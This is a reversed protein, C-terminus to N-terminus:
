EAMAVLGHVSRFPYQFHQYDGYSAGWVFGHRTLARTAASGALFLGRAGAFRHLYFRDPFVGTPAEYPNEWTNIDIANGYAHPSLVRRAEEGDVYRYNFGSTNDAAMSAYDDAGLVRSRGFVDPLVMRRIPFGLHFLDTFAAGAAPATTANVVLEGRHRYGDFGWHNVRLLRLDARGVPAGPRWSTHQMGAWVADPVAQVTANAGRGVAPPGPLGRGDVGRDVTPAPAGAPPVVPRAAPGATVRLVTSTAPALRKSGAFLLRYAGTRWATATAHGRGEADLVIRRVPRWATVAGSPRVGAAAQLEVSARHLARGTILHVTVTFARESVARTPGGLELRVRVRPGTAAPAESAVAAVPDATGVAVGSRPSPRWSSSQTADTSRCRQV